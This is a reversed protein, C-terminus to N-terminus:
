SRAGNRRRKLTKEDEVEQAIRALDDDTLAPQKKSKVPSPAVRGIKVLWANFHNLTWVFDGAVQNEQIQENVHDVFQAIAQETEDKSAGKYRRALNDYQPYTICFKRFPLPGCKWHDHHGFANPDNAGVGRRPGQNRLSEVGGSNEARSESTSRVTRVDTELVTRVETDVEEETDTDAIPKSQKSQKGNNVRARHEAVKERIYERREQGRLMERYKQGNLILWGGDVREIRRGEFEQSRSYKDPKQFKELYQECDEVSLNSLKALAPVTAACVNAEDKLALMTIWLVRCDNPESWITSTVIQSFLKTFGNM